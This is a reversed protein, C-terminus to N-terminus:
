APRSASSPRQRRARRRRRPGHRGRRRLPAPRGRRGIMAAVARRTDRRTARRPGGARPVVARRGLRPGATAARRRGDGRPPRRRSPRPTSRTCAEALARAARARARWGAGRRACPRDALAHRRGHRAAGVRGGMGAVPNVVCGSACAPTVGTRLESSPRRRPGARASSSWRTSSTRPSWSRRRSRSRTPARAARPHDRRLERARAVVRRRSRARAARLTAAARLSESWSSARGRARTGPGRRRAPPRRVGRAAAARLDDGRAAAQAMLGDRRSSTSTPWRRPPPWRTPRTPTATASSATRTAIGLSCTGSRRRLGHVGLAPRLRLHHGQRRDDPRAGDRVVDSGFWTGLRGFGCVVEDAILLVDHKDCCRRSRRSTAHRAPRDRRRRGPDARRHLRRRDRSGRRPHAGRARRRATRVFEEETEDAAARWSATRPRRPGSWRCRCTSATTCARAARDPQGVHGDRRPLRPRPLHDEEEGAPRPRQQLVLRAQGPHRQRRLRQQRLVGEGDAGPAEAILREALRAAPETGMSAFAHYYPLKAGARALADAIESTATASTSAGCAPWPTSTSADRSTSWRHLRARPRDDLPGPASTTALTPSRTSSTSATSTRSPRRDDHRGANRTTTVYPVTADAHASLTSTARMFPWM